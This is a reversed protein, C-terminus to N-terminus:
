EPLPVGLPRQPGQPDGERKPIYVRYIILETSESQLLKKVIRSLKM